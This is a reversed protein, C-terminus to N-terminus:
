DVGIANQISMSEEPTLVMLSGDFPSLFEVGHENVSMLKSLSVM